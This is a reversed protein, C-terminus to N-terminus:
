FICHINRCRRVFCFCTNVPTFDDQTNEKIQNNEGSNQTVNEDQHGDFSVLTELCDKIEVNYIQSQSINQHGDGSHSEICQVIDETVPRKAPDHTANPDKKIIFHRKHRNESQTDDRHVAEPRHVPRYM